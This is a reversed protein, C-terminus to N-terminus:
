EQTIEFFKHVIPKIGKVYCLTNNQFGTDFLTYVKNKSSKLQPDNAIVCLLKSTPTNLPNNIIYKSGRNTQAGGTWLDLQNMGIIVKGTSKEQVYWDPIETTPNAECVKEFCVDFQSPNLNLDLVTQKVITNFKNGRVVGKTGAPILSTLYDQIIKDKLTADVYKDLVVRLNQIEKKVSACEKYEPLLSADSLASLTTQCIEASIRKTITQLTTALASM